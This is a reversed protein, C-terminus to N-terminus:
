HDCCRVVCVIRLSAIAGDQARIIFSPFTSAPAALASCPPLLLSRHRTLLWILFGFQTDTVCKRSTKRGVVMRRATSSMKFVKSSKEVEVRVVFINKHETRSEIRRRKAETLKLYTSGFGGFRARPKRETEFNPFHTPSSLEFVKSGRLVRRRHQSRPLRSRIRFLRACQNLARTALAADIAPKCNTFLRANNVFIFSFNWEIWM